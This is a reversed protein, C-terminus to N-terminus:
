SAGGDESMCGLVRPSPMVVWAGHALIAHEFDPNDSAAIAIGPLGGLGVVGGGAQYVAEILQTASDKPSLVLFQGHVPTAMLTAVALGLLGVLLLVVAPAVDTWGSKADGVAAARWGNWDDSM